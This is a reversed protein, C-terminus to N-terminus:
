EQSLETYKMLAINKKAEKGKMVVYFTYKNNKTGHM